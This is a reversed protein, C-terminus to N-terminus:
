HIVVFRRTVSRRDQRLRAFYVGSELERGGGVSTRHPGAELGDWREALVRRGNLDYMEFAAPASRALSFEVRLGDADFGIAGLALTSQDPITISAEGVFVEGAPRQVGLRYAYTEGPVVAADEYRIRQAGDPEVTAMGIWPGEGARRYLRASEVESVRWTVQVRGGAADIAILDALVPVLGPCGPVPAQWHVLSRSAPNNLVPDFNRQPPQFLQIENLVICAPLDCGACSGTGASRSRLLNVKFAYYEIPPDVPGRQDFPVAAQIRLRARGPSAFGVDYAFGGAAQGTFFDACAFPGTTFDFSVALGTTGRCYAAGHGWWDPLTSTTTTIDIQASLGLFETV